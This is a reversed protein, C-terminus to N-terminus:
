SQYKRASPEQETCLCNLCISKLPYNSVKQKEVSHCNISSMGQSSSSNSPWHFGTERRKCYRLNLNQEHLSIASFSSSSSALFCSAAANCSLTLSLSRAEDDKSVSRDQLFRWSFCSAELLSGEAVFLPERPLSGLAAGAPVLAVASLFFFFYIRQQSSSFSWALVRWILSFFFLVLGFCGWFVWM